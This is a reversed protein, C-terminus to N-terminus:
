VTIAQPEDPRTLYVSTSAGFAPASLGALAVGFLVFAKLDTEGAVRNHGGAVVICRLRAACDTTLDYGAM